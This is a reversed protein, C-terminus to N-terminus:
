VLVDVGYKRLKASIETRKEEIDNLANTFKEYSEPDADRKLELEFAKKRLEYSLLVLSGVM